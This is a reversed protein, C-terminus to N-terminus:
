KLLPKTKESKTVQLYTYDLPHKRPRQMWSVVVSPPKGAAQSSWLSSKGQLAQSQDALHKGPPLGSAM